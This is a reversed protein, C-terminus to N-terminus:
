LTYHFPSIVPGALYPPVLGQPGVKMPQMMEFIKAKKIDCMNDLKEYLSKGMRPHRRLKLTIYEQTM